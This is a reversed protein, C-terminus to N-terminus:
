RWPLCWRGLHNQLVNGNLRDLGRLFDLRSGRHLVRRRDGFGRRFGLLHVERVEPTTSTSIGDDGPEHADHAPPKMRSAPVCSPLQNHKPIGTFQKPIFHLPHKLASPEKCTKAIWFLVGKQDHLRVQINNLVPQLVRAQHM